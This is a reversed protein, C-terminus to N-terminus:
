WHTHINLYLVTKVKMKDLLRSVCSM